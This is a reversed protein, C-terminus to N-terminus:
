SDKLYDLNLHFRNPMIGFQRPLSDLSTTRDEALDDRLMKMALINLGKDELRSIVRGMLRRQVCDPKLLILTREMHPMNHSVALPFLVPGPVAFGVLQRINSPTRM